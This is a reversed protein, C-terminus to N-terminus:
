GCAARRKLRLERRRDAPSQPDTQVAIARAVAEAYEEQREPSSAPNTGGPAPLYYRSRKGTRADGARYVLGLWELDDLADSVGQASMGTEMRFLSGSIPWSYYRDAHSAIVFLVLRPLPELRGRDQDVDLERVWRAARDSNSGRGTPASRPPAEPEM